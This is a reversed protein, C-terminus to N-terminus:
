REARELRARNSDFDTMGVVSGGVASNIEFIKAAHTGSFGFVKPIMWSSSAFAADMKGHTEFSIVPKVGLPYDTLLSQVLILTGTGLAAITAPRNTKRCLLAVGFFFAVHAYDIMGHERPGIAKPLNKTVRMAKSGVSMAEGKFRL